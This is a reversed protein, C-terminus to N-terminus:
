DEDVDWRRERRDEKSRLYGFERDRTRQTETSEAVYEISDSRVWARGGHLDVFKIWRPGWRRDLERGVRAATEASVFWNGYQSVVEYYDGPGSRQEPTEAKQKQKNM